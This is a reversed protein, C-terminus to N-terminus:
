ESVKGHETGYDSDLIFRWSSQYPLQLEVNSEYLNVTAAQATVHNKACASVPRRPQSFLM